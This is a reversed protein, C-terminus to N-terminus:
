SVQNLKQFELEGHTRLGGRRRRHEDMRTAGFIDLKKKQDENINKHRNKSTRRTEAKYTTYIEM